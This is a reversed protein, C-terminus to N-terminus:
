EATAAEAGNRALALGGARSSAAAVPWVAFTDGVGVLELHLGALDGVGYNDAYAQLNHLGAEEEDFFFVRAGRGIRRGPRGVDGVLNTGTACPQATYPVGLADLPKAILTRRTADPQGALLKVTELLKM